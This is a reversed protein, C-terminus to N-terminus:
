KRYGSTMIDNETIECSIEDIYQYAQTEDKSRLALSSMLYQDYTAKEFTNYSVKIGYRIKSLKLKLNIQVMIWGEMLEM